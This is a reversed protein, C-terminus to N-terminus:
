IGSTAILGPLFNLIISVLSVVFLGIVFFEFTFIVPVVIYTIRKLHWYFFFSFFVIYFIATMVALTILGVTFIDM